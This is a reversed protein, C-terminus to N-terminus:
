ERWAREAHGYEDWYAQEDDDEDRTAMEYALVAREGPTM